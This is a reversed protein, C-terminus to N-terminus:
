GAINKLEEKASDLLKINHIAEGIGMNLVVKDLKPIQMVNKYQFSEMLMPAINQEYHSKLYSM